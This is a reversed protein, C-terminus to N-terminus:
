VGLTMPISSNNQLKRLYVVLFLVSIGAVAAIEPASPFLMWALLISLGTQLLKGPFYYRLSLGQAVSATQMTVCLGGFALIGSCILFRLGPDEIAALSCCGNSLELMGIIAVQWVEPLLWLIWRQLFAIVVRFLIIWGCVPAMVRISQKLSDSLSLNKSTTMSISDTSSHPLLICVALASVIHIGWLLWAYRIGPFLPAIMGFLFSPGANNCFGLMREAQNKSLCGSEYAASINQAGVPYGGLFGALLLSEAGKPVGLLGLSVPFKTGLLSTTLLGSLVFFPFLSPIVTRICLEIGEAAGSFGTKGDLILILMGLAAALGPYMRRNRM